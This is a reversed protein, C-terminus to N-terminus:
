KDLKIEARVEHIVAKDDDNMKKGLDGFITDIAEKGEGKAREYTEDLVPIITKLASSLRDARAQAEEKLNGQRYHRWIWAGVVGIAVVAIGLVTWKFWWQGVIQALGFCCLSALGAIAAFPGAVKLAALGGFALCIGLAGIAIAACAVASRNLWKVQDRMVENKAAEIQRDYSTKLTALDRQYKAELKAHDELATKLNEKIGALERADADAKKSAEAYMKRAEDVRGELMARARQEGALLEVPDPKTDLRQAALSLESDVINKVPSEAQTLNANRATQVNAAVEAKIQSSKAEQAVVADSVGSAPAAPIPKVPILSCGSLFVFLFIVILKTKM